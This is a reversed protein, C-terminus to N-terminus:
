EIVEDARALGAHKAAKAALAAVNGGAVILAPGLRLLEQVLAPIRDYRGEAWRVEVSVSRGEIYGTEALGARFAADMAATGAPFGGSLRGVIPVRAGPQARAALPLAVGSGLLALLERRRLLFRSPGHDAGPCGGIAPKMRLPRGGPPGSM